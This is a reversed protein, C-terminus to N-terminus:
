VFMKKDYYIKIHYKIKTIQLRKHFDSTEFNMLEDFTFWKCIRTYRETYSIHLDEAIPIDKASIYKVKVFYSLYTDRSSIYLTSNNIQDTFHNQAIPITNILKTITDDDYELSVNNKLKEYLEANEPTNNENLYFLCSTEENFERAATMFINEDFNKKGGFDNWGIDKKKCPVDAHQLLFYVNGDVIAYPIIGAGKSYMINYEERLPYDSFFYEKSYNPFSTVNRNRHRPKEHYSREDFSRSAYKNSIQKNNHKITIPQARSSVEPYTLEPQRVFSPEVEAFEGVLIKPIDNINNQM